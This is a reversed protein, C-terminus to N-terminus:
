WKKWTRGSVGLVAVAAVILIAFASTTAWRGADESSERLHRTPQMLPSTDIVAPANRYVPFWRAALDIALQAPTNAFATLAENRQVLEGYAPRYRYEIDGMGDGDADYGRYDDWYNGRGDIQWSNHHEISGGTTDAQRLNGVFTNGGFQAGVTTSMAIALQNFGILNDRLRVYAGPTFPAGEFTLGIRNHHFSNHLMEVNDVDKFLLGYGSAKSQSRSFENDEFYLDNSYMLSGGTLNDRFVNDVIRANNAYMFHIGYRLETVSNRFIDNHDSFNIYIGDKAHSIVNDELVNNKTYYLYLAHGRREPLFERISEVTNGRVVHNDSEHLTIGYLVDRVRNGEIRSGSARVLIGSPEDSVERGSGQIVLGRLTVGEATVKVVNGTRQGDIVPWGVGEITLPKDILVGGPYVGAPVTLTSGAPAADIMAQLDGAANAATVGGPRGSFAAGVVVLGVIATTVAKATGTNSWSDRLFRIAPSGFTILVAGALMVWWGWDVMCESHFNVVKTSGLVHPTFPGPYLPAEENLDHGYNYLWYQIDVLFGIIFGWAVLMAALRVIRRKVLAAAVMLGVTGALLFPFLKLELVDDPHIEKVGAYHNLSNIEQLDGKMTTGYATLYLNGPYQPAVLAMHWLPMFAAAVFLVAAAIACLSWTDFRATISSAPSAASRGAEETIISQAV